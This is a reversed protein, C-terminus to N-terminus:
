RRTVKVPAGTKLSEYAAYALEISRLGDVADAGIRETGEEIHARYDDFIDGHEKAVLNPYHMELEGEVYVEMRQNNYIDLTISGKTGVVRITVDGWMPDNPRRTWSADIQYIAGDTM